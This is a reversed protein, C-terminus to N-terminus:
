DHVVDYSHRDQQYQQYKGKLFIFLITVLIGLFASLFGTLILKGQESMESKTPQPNQFTYM